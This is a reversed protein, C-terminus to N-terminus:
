GGARAAVVRIEVALPLLLGWAIVLGSSGHATDITCGRNDRRAEEVYVLM